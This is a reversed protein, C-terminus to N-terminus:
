VHNAEFLEFKFESKIKEIEDYARANLLANIYRIHLFVLNIKKIKQHDIINKILEKNEDDSFYDKYTQEVFHTDVLFCEYENIVTKCYFTIDEITKAIYNLLKIKKFYENGYQSVIENLTISKTNSIFNTHNTDYCISELDKINNDVVQYSLDLILTQRKMHFVVSMDKTTYIVVNTTSDIIAYKM